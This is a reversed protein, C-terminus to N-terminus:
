TSQQAKIKLFKLIKNASQAKHDAIKQAWESGTMLVFAEPSVIETMKQYIDLEEM